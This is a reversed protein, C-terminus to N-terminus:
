GDKLIIPLYIVCCPVPALIESAQSALTVTLTRTADPPSIPHQTGALLATATLPIAPLGLCDAQLTVTVTTTEATTNRLTFYLPCDGFREIYVDDPESTAAYPVPQWGAVNLRRILPIYRKFLDRDRNYLMVGKCRLEWYPNEAANHSFMSPYLGYFLSVQFYRDVLEHTLTYPLGATPTCFNTNMLLLYPRQYALTRRYSLIADSEPVFGDEPESGDHVLWNTETGMVDFLDAGWPLDRLIWNAMMWKDLNEHVDQALWRAFEVTAFVEPVGVRRNGTGYTLPTDTASFHATRFDMVTAHSLFSDVYEGDLGPTTTYVERKAQNWELHAKNLPYDPDSIDPDPNVTFVACGAPGSCWPVTGADYAQCRYRGCTDFLGSSLTAEARESEGGVSQVSLDDFWAMGEHTDRLLCHVNLSQITQTPVVFGELFQWEHSGTDFQLVQPYLWDGGTKYVDLYLSYNNDSVGTVSQAKSWGSFYLPRSITQNLAINQWAGHKGTSLTNILQLARSNGRGGTPDIMYGFGYPEWPDASDPPGEEFAANTLQNPLRPVVERVSLDDFWVTGTHTGRLLCHVNVSQIPKTPVVFGERFQWDHTGTDFTLVHGWSPTGDTYYADLYVSYDSDPDGTVDEAKSRGSFYLPRPETQTLTITQWAGHADSSVDNILKLSRTGSYAVASDVVYGSGYPEWGNGPPDDEFGPNTLQNPFLIVEHVNLGDFWATGEHTNRLLCHVNVSRITKTPVIFGELFQWEHTGTDFQLTHEYSWTGGTYYVDLYVSYHMDPDGTVNETKSWGSFYLPRPETQNLIIPQFAGHTDSNVNNILKLARGGDRGGTPDITYGSGFPDWYDASHPPGEEFRDNKLLSPWGYQGKLYAIAQNYDHPDVASDNVPLWHTQPEALYYFSLIGNEEDFPVQDLSGLEHFAIGFDQVDTIPELNSFAVWIGEEEPPIRRTFAEPFRDYYGQAAARFGWKGDFRYIVLDVWARSPFKETQLSLGLDFAAYFQNTVPNHILRMASPSDLPVGLAIGLLSGPPGSLSAWPYKSLHGNAGISGDHEGSFNAFENTGSITRGTRIDDGWTWGTASIPLAFYLTLARESDSTDTVVANIAIRDTTATYAASFDLHLEPINSTHIIVDGDQALSGGVHIFDSENAVDRVFFGSAYARDPDHVPTDGLMVSTIAGGDAALTLTLGDGTALSFNTGDPQSIPQSTTVPVSDFVIEGERVSLDDFWVTGSHTWRLLCYVYVELVSKAPVLFDARFQWDCADTDFQLTHGYSWTDNTYRVDLYVSYNSDQDGTVCEAKSWGSFYLPRPETQNLTIVQYAGHTDTTVENVLKLARGGDRGGTPDITYGSGFPAWGIGPPDNEFGPNTLLNSPMAFVRWPTASAVAHIPVARGHLFLLLLSPLLLGIFLSITLRALRSHVTTVMLRKLPLWLYRIQRFM